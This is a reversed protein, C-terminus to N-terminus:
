SNAKAENLDIRAKHGHKELLHLLNAGNLLTLPKGNAFSYSDPGFDSTTVLIGKNAGENLVTGYLDRVASVGVTNTYRKAQIAIKGGHIPDPNFVIADVGGDRSAQTVKVDGGVGSFEQEFLERILHEFDEWDMIALNFSEDLQNAVDYSDVFRSDQKQMKMIPAVPSLSHLKSSGIGKLAKFCAKPEINHLNIEEFEKRTVHISLICPNIENGTSRNISRVWGNFVVSEIAGVIDAKLVENITRISIQYIVDDYLQAHQDESLYAETLSMRSPVYKYGKIKPISDPPPLAYDILIIKTQPVYEVSMERLFYDRYENSILSLRCYEGISDPEKAFYSKKFTEIAIIDDEFQQNYETEKAKWELVVKPYEEDIYKIWDFYYKKLQANKEVIINKNKEWELHDAALVKAKEQIEFKRGGPILYDLLVFQPKYKSWSPLPEPDIEELIPKPPKAYSVPRPTFEQYEVRSYFQYWDLVHSKNLSDRLLNSLQDKTAVAEATRTEAQYKLWDKSKRTYESVKQEVTWKEDWEIRLQRIQDYIRKYDFSRLFKYLSLGAHSLEVSYMPIGKATSDIRFNSVKTMIENIKVIQNPAKEVHNPAENIGYKKNFYSKEWTSKADDYGCNWGIRWENYGFTNIPHYPNEEVLKDLFFADRGEARIISDDYKKYM